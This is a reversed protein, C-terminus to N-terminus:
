ASNKADKNNEKDDALSIILDLAAGTLSAAKWGDSNITLKALKPCIAALRAKEPCATELLEGVMSNLMDETAPKYRDCDPAMDVLVIDRYKDASCCAQHFRDDWKMSTNVALLQLTQILKQESAIM